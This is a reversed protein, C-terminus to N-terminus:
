KEYLLYLNDLKESITENFISLVYMNGYHGIGIVWDSQRIYYCQPNKLTSVDYHAGYYDCLVQAEELSLSWKTFGYLKDNYFNFMFDLNMWEDLMLDKNYITYVGAYDTGEDYDLYNRTLVEKIKDKSDNISLNWFYLNENFSLYENKDYIEAPFFEETVTKVEKLEDEVTSIGTEDGKATNEDYMQNKCCLSKNCGSLIFFFLIIFWRNNKRM